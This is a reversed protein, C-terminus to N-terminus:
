EGRATRAQAGRVGVRACACARRAAACRAACAAIGARGRERGHWAARARTRRSTGSGAAEVREVHTGAKVAPREQARGRVGRAASSAAGGAPSCLLRWWSRAMGVVGPRGIGDDQPRRAARAAEGSCAVQFCRPGRPINRHNIVVIITVLSNTCGLSIKDRM